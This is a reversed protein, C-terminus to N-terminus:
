IPLFERQAWNSGSPYFISCIIGVLAAVTVVARGLLLIPRSSWGLRPDTQTGGTGESGVRHHWHNRRMNKAPLFITPSSHLGPSSLTYFTCFIFHTNHLILNYSALLYIIVKDLCCIKDNLYQVGNKSRECVTIQFLKPWIWDQSNKGTWSRWDAM